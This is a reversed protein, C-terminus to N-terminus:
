KLNRPHRDLIIANWCTSVQRFNNWIIECARQLERINELM